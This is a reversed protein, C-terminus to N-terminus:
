LAGSYGVDNGDHATVMPLHFLKLITAGALFIGIQNARSAVPRGPWDAHKSDADVRPELAGVLFRRPLAKRGTCRSCRWLTATGLISRTVGYSSKREASSERTSCTAYQLSFTLQANKWRLVTGRELEPLAGREGHHRRRRPDSAGRLERTRPNFYARSSYHAAIPRIYPPCSVSLM